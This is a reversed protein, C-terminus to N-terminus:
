RCVLAQPGLYFILLSAGPKGAGYGFHKGGAALHFCANIKPLESCGFLTVLM